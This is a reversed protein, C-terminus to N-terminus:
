RDAALRAAAVSQVVAGAFIAVIASLDLVESITHAFLFITWDLHYTMYSIEAAAFLSFGSALLTLDRKFAVWAFSAGIAFASVHVVLFFWTPLQNVWDGYPM